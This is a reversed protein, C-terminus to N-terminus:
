SLSLFSVNERFFFFFFFNTKVKVSCQNAVSVHASSNLTRHRRGFFRFHIIIFANTNTEVDKRKLREM